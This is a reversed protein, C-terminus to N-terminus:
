GGQHGSRRTPLATRATNARTRAHACRGAHRAAQARPPARPRRAGGGVPTTSSAARSTPSCLCRAPATPSARLTEWWWARWSPSPTRARRDVTGARTPPPARRPLAALGPRPALLRAAPAGRSRRRAGAPGPAAAPAARRVKLTLGCMHSVDFLSANSRCWLTSEQPPPPRLPACRPLANRRRAPLLPRPAPPQGAPLAGGCPAAAARRRALGRSGWAAAADAAAAAATSPRPPPPPVWWSPTRTSFPCRGARLSWWRAQARMPDVLDILDARSGVAPQCRPPAHRAGALCAALPPERGPDAAPWSRTGAAHLGGRRPAPRACSCCAAAVAAAPPLRRRRRRRPGGNQLHFDYLVTKKLSADDAFGRRLLLGATAGLGSGVSQTTTQAAPAAALAKALQLAARRM